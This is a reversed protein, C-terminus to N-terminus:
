KRRGSSGARPARPSPLAPSRPAPAACPMFSFASRPVRFASNFHSTTRWSARRDTGREGNRTGCQHHTAPHPNEKGPAAGAAVEHRGEREGLRQDFRPRVGFRDEDADLAADFRLHQRVIRETKMQKRDLRNMSVLPPAVRAPEDDQGANPVRDPLQQAALPGRDHDAGATVGGTRHHQARLTRPDRGRQLLLVRERSERCPPQCPARALHM